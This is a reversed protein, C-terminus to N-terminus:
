RSLVCDHRGNVRIGRKILQQSLSRTYGVIAAKTVSYPLLSPHGKYAVISTTNIICSGASMHPLALRHVDIHLSNMVDPYKM